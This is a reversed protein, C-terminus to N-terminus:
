LKSARLLVRKRDSPGQLLHAFDVNKVMPCGIASSSPNAVPAIIIGAPGFHAHVLDPQIERLAEELRDRVLPWEAHLPKRESSPVLTRHWLRHPHWRGPREVVTANPFPRSDENVRRLTVVCTDVGQRQMESVHDYIFTESSTSFEQRFHAVRM